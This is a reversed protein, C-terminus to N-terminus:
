CHVFWKGSKEDTRVLLVGKDKLINKIQKMKKM